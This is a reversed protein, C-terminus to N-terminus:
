KKEIDPLIKMYLVHQYNFCGIIKGDQNYLNNVSSGGTFLKGSEEVGLNEVYGTFVKGDTFYIM